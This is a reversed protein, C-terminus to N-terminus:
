DEYDLSMDNNARAIGVHQVPEVADQAYPKLELGFDNQYDLFTKVQDALIRAQRDAYDGLNNLDSNRLYETGIQNRISARLAIKIKQQAFIPASTIASSNKARLPILFRKNLRGEMDGEGLSVVEQMKVEDLSDLNVEAFMSLLETSTLYSSILAM